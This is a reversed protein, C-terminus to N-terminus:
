LKVPESYILDDFVVLDKPGGQSIDKQGDALAGQHHVVVKTVKENQFSVGLFSFASSADHAPPFFKGVSNNGSFFEVSVSGEVDIDAIVLGFAKVSAPTKEGAVEFGVPWELRSVNAFTKTGSFPPLESVAQSNLHSFNNASVEFEGDDYVLGRQLSASAGSGVPNFLNGPLPKNLLSDPVGDWNIERRGTTAGHSINVLGLATRFEDMKPKIDGTAKYVTFASGPKSEKTCSFFLLLFLPSLLMNKM